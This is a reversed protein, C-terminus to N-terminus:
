RQYLHNNRIYAAVDEALYHDFDEGKYIRERILSSSIEVRIDTLYTLKSALGPLKLELSPLDVQYGPRPAVPLQDIGGLFRGPQHWEPLDGLSDEGIIYVLDSDPHEQKIIEVTDAAYYPPSRRLDVESLEFAEQRDIVLQVMELRTSVPALKLDAKHPPDPTILWRVLDLELQFLAERALKEHGLHPPDFTGGLYGIRMIGTM